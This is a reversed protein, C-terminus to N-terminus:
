GCGDPSVTMFAGGSVAGTIVAAFSASLRSKGRL